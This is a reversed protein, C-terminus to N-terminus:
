TTMVEHRLTSLRSRRRSLRREARGNKAFSVGFGHSTSTDVAEAHRAAPRCYSPACLLSGDKLVERPIKIDPRCPDHSATEFGSRPNQPICCAKPADLPHADTLSPVPVEVFSM